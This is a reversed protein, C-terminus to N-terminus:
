DSLGAEKMLEGNLEYAEHFFATFTESDMYEIKRNAGTMDAQFKESAVAEGCASSLKAVVDAPTDDQAFLGFWISVNVDYGLETMAPIEPHEESRKDAM